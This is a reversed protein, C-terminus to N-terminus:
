WFIPFLLVLPCRISARAIYFSLQFGLSSTKQASAIFVHFSCVPTKLIV